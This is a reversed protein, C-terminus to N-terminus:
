RLGISIIYVPSLGAPLGTLESIAKDNFAGVTLAGLGLSTAELLMNQGAHGAEMYVYRAARDGYKSRTKELDAAIIINVAALAVASQGLAAGALKDRGVGEKVKQLSNSDPDYKYVSGEQVLYLELPYLAGASPVKRTAGSATDVSKGQGVWLLQSVQEDTLPGARFSRVSVRAEIATDLPTGGSTVPRPLSRSGGPNRDESGTGCGPVLMLMVVALVAIQSVNSM